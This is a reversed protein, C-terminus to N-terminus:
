NCATDAPFVVCRVATAASPEDADAPLVRVICLLTGGAAAQGAQAAATFAVLIEPRDHGHQEDDRTATSASISIMPQTSAPSAAAASAATTAQQALTLQLLPSITPSLAAPVAAFAATCDEQLV